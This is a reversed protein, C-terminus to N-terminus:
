HSHAGGSSGGRCSRSSTGLCTRSRFNLCSNSSISLNGSCSISLNGSSGASLSGCCSVSLSSGGRPGLRRRRWDRLAREGCESSPRNRGSRSRSDRVGEQSWEPFEYCWRTPRSGDGIRVKKDANGSAGVMVQQNRGILRHTEHLRDAVLIEIDGDLDVRRKHGRISVGALTEDHEGIVLVKEGERQRGISALYTEVGTDNGTATAVM